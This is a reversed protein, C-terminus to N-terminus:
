ATLCEGTCPYQRKAGAKKAFLAADKINMNNGVGNIPVFIVDIDRNIDAFFRTMTCRIEPSTIIKGEASIIVGVAELDSHQARVSYFTIDGYSFLTRRNFMVYNHDGGIEAGRGMCEEICACPVFRRLKLYHPLTEPDTHDLHNHTLVLVDPKIKLFGGDVPVRRKNKPQIKEVSDSLYPDVIIKKEAHKM